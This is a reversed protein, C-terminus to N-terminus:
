EVDGRFKRAMRRIIIERDRANRVWQDPRLDPQLAKERLIASEPPTM